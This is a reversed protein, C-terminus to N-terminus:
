LNLHLTFYKSVTSVHACCSVKRAGAKCTCYHDIIAAAGNQNPSYQIWASHIASSQFRSHIQTRIIEPFEKHYRLEFLGTPSLHEAIYRKAQNAHYSGLSASELDDYCLRPFDTLCAADMKKWAATCKIKGAEKLRECLDNSGIKAREVADKAFNINRTTETFGTAGYKNLIACVNMFWSAVNASYRGPITEKFFQFKQKM